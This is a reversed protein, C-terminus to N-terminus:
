LEGGSMIDLAKSPPITKIVNGELDRVQIIVRNTDEDRKFHLERNSKHMQEVVEAAKAVLERAEPTPAPPVDGVITGTEEVGTPRQAAADRPETAAAPPVSPVAPLQQYPIFRGIQLTM